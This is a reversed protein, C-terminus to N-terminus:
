DRDQLDKLHHAPNNDQRLSSGQMLLAAKTLNRIRYDSVAEQDVGGVKGEKDVEEQFGIDKALLVDQVRFLTVGFALSRIEVVVGDIVVAHSKSVLFGVLDHM